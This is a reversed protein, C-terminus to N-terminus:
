LVVEKAVEGTKSRIIIVGAFKDSDIEVFWIMSGRFSNRSISRIERSFVVIGKEALYKTAVKAAEFADTIESM